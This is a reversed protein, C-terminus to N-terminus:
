EAVKYVWDIYYGPDWGYKGGITFGDTASFPITITTYSEDSLLGEFRGKDEDYPLNRNLLYVDSDKYYSNSTGKKIYYVFGRELHWGAIYGQAIGAIRLPDLQQGPTIVYPPPDFDFTVTYDSIQNNQSNDLGVYAEDFQFIAQNQDLIYTSSWEYGSGSRPYEGCIETSQETADECIDGTAGNYKSLIIKDLTLKPAEIEFEVTAQSSLQGDSVSFQMNDSGLYGTDPTYKLLHGSGSLRGHSPQKIITYFLADCEIDPTVQDCDMDDAYLVFSVPTNIRVRESSDHAMPATNRLLGHVSGKPKIFRNLAHPNLLDPKSFLIVFAESDVDRFKYKKLIITELLESWAAKADFEEVEYASKSIQAARFLAAVLAIKGAKNNEEGEAEPYDEVAKEAGERIKSYKKFFDDIVKEKPQSNDRDDEIISFANFDPTLKTGTDNIIHTPEQFHGALVADIIQAMSYGYDVSQIIAMASDVGEPFQALLKDSIQQGTPTLKWITSWLYFPSSLPPNGTETALLYFTYTDGPLMKLPIDNLLSENIGRSNSRWPTLGNKFSQLAGTETILMLDDGFIEPATLGLYFDMSSFFSNSRLTLTLDGSENAAENVAIPRALEPNDHTTTKAVAEYPAIIKIQDPAAIRAIAAGPLLLSCIISLIAFKFGNRSYHCTNSTKPNTYFM